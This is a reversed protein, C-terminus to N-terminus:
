GFQKKFELFYAFVTEPDATLNSVDIAVDYDRFLVRKLAIMVFSLDKAANSEDNLSIRVSFKKGTKIGDTKFTTEVFHMNKIENWPIQTKSLMSDTFGISDLRLRPGSMSLIKFARYSANAAAFIVVAVFLPVLLGFGSLTGRMESVIWYFIYAFVATIIPLFIVGPLAGWVSEKFVVPGRRVVDGIAEDM